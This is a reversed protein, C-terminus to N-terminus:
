SASEIRGTEVTRNVPFARRGTTPQTNDTELALTRGTDPFEPGSARARRYSDRCRDLAGEHYHAIHVGDGNVRSLDHLTASM